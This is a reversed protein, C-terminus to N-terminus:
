KQKYKEVHIKLKEVDSNSLEQNFIALFENIKMIFEDFGSSNLVYYKLSIKMDENKPSVLNEFIYGNETIFQLSKNSLYDLEKVNEIKEDNAEFKNNEFLKKGLYKNIENKTKEDLFWDGYLESLKILSDYNLNKIYKKIIKHWKSNHEAPNESKQKILEYDNKNIKTKQFEAVDQYVFNGITPLEDTAQRWSRANEPFERKIYGLVSSIILKALKNKISNNM